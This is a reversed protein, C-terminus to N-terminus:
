SRWHTLGLYILLAGAGVFWTRGSWAPIPKKAIGRLTPYSTFFKAGPLIGSVAAIMGLAVLFPGTAKYAEGIM